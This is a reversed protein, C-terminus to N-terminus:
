HSGAFIHQKTDCGLAKPLCPMASCWHQPGKVQQSIMLTHLHPFLHMCCVQLLWVPMCNAAEFKLYAAAQSHSVKPFNFLFMEINVVPVQQEVVDKESLEHSICIERFATCVCSCHVTLLFIGTAINPQSPSGAGQLDNASLAKLHATQSEPTMVGSQHTILPLHRTCDVVTRLSGTCSCCM